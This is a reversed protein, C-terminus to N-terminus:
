NKLDTEQLVLKDTKKMYKLVVWVISIGIVIASWLPKLTVKGSHGYERLMEVFVLSITTTLLTDHERKLVMKISFKRHPRRFNKFSPLLCNVKEAYRQYQDGFKEMLFSEETFIIPMYIVAFMVTNLLVVEHNQALLSIGLLILYNGVYLPNRVISYAGSTNLEEAKQAKTNRGSTGEHVFGVTLVRILMGSLAVLICFIEYYINDAIHYFHNREELLILLLVLPQYSRYKFFKHGTHIFRDRLLM